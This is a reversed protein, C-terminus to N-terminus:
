TVWQVLLMLLLMAIACLGVTECDLRDMAWGRHRPPPLVGGGGEARERMLGFKVRASAWAAACVAAQAM